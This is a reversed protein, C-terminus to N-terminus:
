YRGSSIGQTPSSGGCYGNQNKKCSDLFTRGLELFDPPLPSHLEITAGSTPYQFTLSTAHLLPRPVRLKCAGYHCDGAIPYGLSALHVRIQHTRGTKPYCSVLTATPARAVVRWATEAYLAGPTSGDATSGWFTQGQYSGKRVLYNSIVGEDHPITGEVIAIYVKEVTRQRFQRTLQQYAEESKALLLLGTTDRDLRHVLKLFGSRRLHRMVAEDESVLGVPKDLALLLEDEYIISCSSGAPKKGTSPPELSRWTVVDGSCLRRSGFKEVKGNVYCCQCDLQRKIAKGTWLGALQRQLFSLLSLGDDTSDVSWVSESSPSSAYTM